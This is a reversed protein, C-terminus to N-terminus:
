DIESLVTVVEGYYSLGWHSVQGRLPETGHDSEEWVTCLGLERGCDWPLLNQNKNGGSCVPLLVWSYSPLWWGVLSANTTIALSAAPVCCCSAGRLM